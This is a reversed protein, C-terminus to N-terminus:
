THKGLKSLGPFTTHKRQSQHDFCQKKHLDFYESGFFAAPLVLENFATTLLRHFDELRCAIVKISGVIPIALIKGVDWARSHDGTFVYLRSCAAYDARNYGCHVSEIGLQSPLKLYFQL